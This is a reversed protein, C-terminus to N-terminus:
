FHGFAGGEYLREANVFSEYLLFNKFNNVYKRM